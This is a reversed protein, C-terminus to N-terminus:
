SKPNTAYFDSLTVPEKPTMSGDSSQHDVEHKDKYHQPFRNKLNFIYGTPNFGEVEGFIAKQGKSEWWAQCVTEARKVSALFDEHERQWTMFTEYCIGVYACFQVKSSGDSMFEVVTDCYEKKYKTPRGVKAKEG